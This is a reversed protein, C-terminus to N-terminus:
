NCEGLLGGALSTYEQNEVLELFGKQEVLAAM